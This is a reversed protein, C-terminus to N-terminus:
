MLCPKDNDFCSSITPEATLFDPTAGATSSPLTPYLEGRDVGVPVEEPTLRLNRILM